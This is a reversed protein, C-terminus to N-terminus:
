RYVHRVVGNRSTSREVNTSNIYFDFEKDTLAMRTFTRLKVKDSTYTVSYVTNYAGVNEVIKAIKM